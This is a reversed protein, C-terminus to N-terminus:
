QGVRQVGSMALSNQVAVNLRGVDEDGARALGLEKIEAKTFSSSAPPRWIFCSIRSTQSWEMARRCSPIRKASCSKIALLESRNQDSFIHYGGPASKASSSCPM